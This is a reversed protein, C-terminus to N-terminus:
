RKPTLGGIGVQGAAIGKLKGHLVPLNPEKGARKGTVEAFATVAEVASQATKIKGQILSEFGGKKYEDRLISVNKKFEATKIASAAEGSPISALIKSAAVVESISIPGKLAKERADVYRALATAYQVQDTKPATYGVKKDYAAIEEVFRVEPQKKNLGPPVAVGAWRGPRNLADAEYAGSRLDRMARDLANARIGSVHAERREPSLTKLYEAEQKLAVAYYRSYLTRAREVAGEWLRGQANRINTEELPDGALAGGRYFKQGEKVSYKLVDLDQKGGFKGGAEAVSMWPTVHEYPVFSAPRGAAGKPVGRYLASPAPAKGEGTLLYNRLDSVFKEHRQQEGKLQEATLRMGAETERSIALQSRMLSAYFGERAARAPATPTGPAGVPPVKSGFSLGRALGAQAAAAFQESVKKLDSQTVELHPTIGLDKKSLAALHAELKQMLPKDNVSLLNLLLDVDISIKAPM